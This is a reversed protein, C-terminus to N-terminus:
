GRVKMELLDDILATVKRWHVPDAGPDLCARLSAALDRLTQHQHEPLRRRRAPSFFVAGLSEAAESDNLERRVTLLGQRVIGDM